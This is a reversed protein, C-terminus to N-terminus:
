QWVALIVSGISMVVFFYGSNLWLFKWGRRQYLTVGVTTAATLGLWLVFGVMFGQTAPASGTIHLSNIVVALALVQFIASIAVSVIAQTSEKKPMKLLDIKTLKTWQRGLGAPSYWFSGIAIYILWVLAVAWLNIGAFELM